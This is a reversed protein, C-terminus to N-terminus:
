LRSGAPDRSESQANVGRPADLAASPKPQALSEIRLHSRRV